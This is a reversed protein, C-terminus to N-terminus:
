NGLFDKEFMILDCIWKIEFFIDFIEKNGRFTLNELQLVKQTIRSNRTEKREFSFFLAKYSFKKKKLILFIKKKVQSNWTLQSIKKKQIQRSFRGFNSRKSFM